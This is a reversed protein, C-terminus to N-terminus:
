VQTTKVEGAKVFALKALSPGILTFIVIGGLVLTSFSEGFAPFGRNVVAILGIAVGAQPMLSLGLYKSIVPSAHVVHAGIAAGLVKGLARAFVYAAGLLGMHALETVHLSAGSLTFFLLYIPPTINDVLAFVGRSHSIANAITAGFMMCTLLTSLNLRTSLGVCLLLLASLVGLAEENSRLKRSFWAYIMGAALGLLLSGGIELLPEEIMHVVSIHSGTTLMKAISLTIGFIIICVADDIAVVPLLTKTLPGDTKYQRVVMIIPAPATAASIAGLLLSFALSQDLLYYFIAFVVLVAGLAQSMTIIMVNKGMQKLHKLDFEAGIGFAILALALDTILSLRSVASTTIVNLVAPGFLIGGILYGTVAPQKILSALKGFVVGIVLIIGLTLIMDHGKRRQSYNNMQILIEFRGM